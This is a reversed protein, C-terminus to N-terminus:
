LSIHTYRCANLCNNATICLVPQLKLGCGTTILFLQQRRKIVRQSLINFHPVAGKGARSMLMALKELLMWRTTMEVLKKAFIQKTRIHAISVDFQAIQEDMFPRGFMRLFKGSFNEM